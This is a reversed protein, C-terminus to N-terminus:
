KATSDGGPADSQLLYLFLQVILADKAHATFYGRLAYLLDALMVCAIAILLQATLNKGNKAMSLLGFGSGAGFLLAAIVEISRTAATKYLTTSARYGGSNRIGEAFAKHLANAVGDLWKRFKGLVRYFVSTETYFDKAAVRSMGIYLGSGKAWRGLAQLGRCIASSKWAHVFLMAFRVLLSGGIWQKHNM